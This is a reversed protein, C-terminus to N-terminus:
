LFFIKFFLKLVYFDHMTRWVPIESSVSIRKRKNKCNHYFLFPFLTSGCSSGQTMATDCINKHGRIM